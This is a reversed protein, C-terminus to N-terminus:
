PRLTVFTHSCAFSGRPFIGTHKSAAFSDRLKKKINSEPNRRITNKLILPTKKLNLTLM